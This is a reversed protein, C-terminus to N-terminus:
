SGDRAGDPPPLNEALRRMLARTAFLIEEAIEPSFTASLLVYRGQAHSIKNRWANKLAEVTQHVQELFPYHQREFPTRDEHKTKIINNLRSTVATWGSKPDEVKIFKGLDLLGFEIVQMAHFVAAAYRSFALCKRAEEIDDLADPFRAIIEEWKERPERYHKAEERSLIFCYSGRLEDHLRNTLAELEHRLQEPTYNGVAVLHGDIRSIQDVASGLGIAEWDFRMIKLWAGWKIRDEESIVKAERAAEVFLALLQASKVISDAFLDKM